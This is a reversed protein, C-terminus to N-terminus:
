VRDRPRSKVSGECPRRPGLCRGRAGAAGLASVSANGEEGLGTQSSWDGWVTGETEPGRGGGPDAGPVAAPSGTDGEGPDPARPGRSRPTAAPPAAGGAGWLASLRKCEPLRQAWALAQPSSSWVSGDYQHCKITVSFLLKFIYVDDM